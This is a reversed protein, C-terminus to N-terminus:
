KSIMQMIVHRRKLSLSEFVEHTNEMVKDVTECLTFLYIGCHKETSSEQHLQKDCHETKPAKSMVAMHDPQGSLTDKM